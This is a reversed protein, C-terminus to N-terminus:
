RSHATAFRRLVLEALRPDDGLPQTVMDASAHLLKDHFFGPGILYSAIVVRRGTARAMRVADDVSPERAALYGLTVPGSWARVLQEAMAEADAAGAARSSGAVALVVADAPTAGVGVLRDRLVQALLEHPGLSGAARVNPRDHVAASIDVETHYGSSLLTPVVVVSDHQQALSEVAETLSPEQVDVYADAVTLDPRVMSVQAAISHLVRQGAVNDTGHACVILATSM